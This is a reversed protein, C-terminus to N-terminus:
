LVKTITPFKTVSVGDHELGSVEVTMFKEYYHFQGDEPAPEGDRVALGESEHWRLNSDESRQRYLHYIGNVSDLDVSEDHECESNRQTPLVYGRVRKARLQIWFATACMQKTENSKLKISSM